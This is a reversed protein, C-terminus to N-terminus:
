RKRWRQTCVKRRKFRTNLLLTLDPHSLNKQRISVASLWIMKKALYVSFVYVELNQM